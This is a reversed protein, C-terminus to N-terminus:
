VMCLELFVVKKQGNDNWSICVSTFGIENWLSLTFGTEYLNLSMMELVRFMFPLGTVVFWLKNEKMGSACGAIALFTDIIENLERWKALRKTKKNQGAGWLSNGWIWSQRTHHSMRDAVGNNHRPFSTDLGTIEIELIYVFMKAFCSTRINPPLPWALSYQRLLM